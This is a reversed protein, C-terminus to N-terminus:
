VAGGRFILECIFGAIQGSIMFIGAALAILLEEGKLRWMKLLKFAITHLIIISTFALLLLITM